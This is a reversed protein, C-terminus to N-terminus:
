HAHPADDKHSHENTGVEDLMIGTDDLTNGHSNSGHSSHEVPAHEHGGSHEHDHGEGTAKPLSQVGLGYRYVLEGGLWSTSLLAVLGIILLIMFGKKEESQRKACIISWIALILFTAFTALAVNRHITMWEHSPGDHNVTFYAYMGAAVTFVSFVVGLWLTWRAYQRTQYRTAYQSALMSVVFAGTAVVLLAVSFHVFIPHWNPLIEIM